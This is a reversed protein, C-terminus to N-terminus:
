NKVPCFLQEGEICYNRIIDQGQPSTVWGILAMAYIYKVHHHKNPNVAIIAYPNYLRSDGQCLIILNLNRKSALYTGRDTLCYAMKEDAIRLTASMGQGTQLYWRGQPTLSALTWIQQEKRHTGSGDARSTFPYKKDYIKKFASVIDLGKTQVPDNKPGVLVFNNFMVERRNLGWGRNIFEKEAEPAHVLVIDVDGNEGLKLAKGTGVAIIDVKINFKEEFPPLLAELLGSNEVSTTTAM